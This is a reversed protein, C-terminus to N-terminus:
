KQYPSCDGNPTQPSSTWPMWNPISPNPVAIHKCWNEYGLIYGMKIAKAHGDAFIMNCNGQHRFRPMTGAWPYANAQSDNDINARVVGSTSGAGWGWTNFKTDQWDKVDSGTGTAGGMYGHEVILIEESPLPLSALAAPAYGGAQGWEAAGFDSVDGAIYGSIGYERAITAPFSPCAWVGGALEYDGIDTVQNNGNKVYPNVLYQWSVIHTTVASNKIAAIEGANANRQSPVYTEDYDQVYQMIALGIQKENSLCSIARAKERVQAFVPFLIAALIAIIAIVVLLEILTFGHSKSRNM